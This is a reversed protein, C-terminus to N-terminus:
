RLLTRKYVYTITDGIKYANKRSTIIRQGCKTYYCYKPEIDMVSQPLQISTSDITCKVVKDGPEIKPGDCSTLLYILGFTLILVFNKM